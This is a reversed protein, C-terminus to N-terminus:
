PYDPQIVFKTLCNMPCCDGSNPQCLLANQAAALVWRMGLSRVLVSLDTLLVATRKQPCETVLVDGSNPQFLLANKAIGIGM